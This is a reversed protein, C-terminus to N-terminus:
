FLYAATITWYRNKGEIKETRDTVAKTIGWGYSAGVQLHSFLQVGAGVNWAIDVSKNKWADEAAQKNVLFSFSPGTFIYPSVIKGVVPLGIMYKLNIPIDIYDRGENQPIINGIQDVIDLSVDASRHVYMVSADFGLNVMPIMFQATLGGTFGARNSANLIDQNFKLDNVAVGIRPGFSFQSYAPFISVLALMVGALLKSISKM